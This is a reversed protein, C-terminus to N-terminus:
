AGLNRMVELAGVRGVPKKMRHPAGPGLPLGAVCGNKGEPSSPALKAIAPSKALLEVNAEAVKGSLIENGIVLAAARRVM